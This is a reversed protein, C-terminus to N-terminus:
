PRDIRCRDSGSRTIRCRDSGSGTIRCRGSGSGTIRCRGSGSRTIRCRGSGSGTIRCRYVIWFCLALVAAAGLYVGPHLDALPFGARELLVGLANHALHWLVAPFISGSLLTLAALLVGLFSVPVIRVVLGHFLGFVLGVTLCLTVPRLRRRLGHLLIGRFFVEELVGPLVVIWFLLQWLPLGEPLLSEGLSRLWEEPLPVVANTLQFLGNAVIVGAPAGLLVALWVPPRPARLSLAEQPDLRYRRLLLLSGGGFLLVVNFLVQRELPALATVNASAVFQVVWVGGAWYPLSQEFRQALTLPEPESASPVILRETSLSRLARHSAWAAACATILWALVLFPWDRSGTMVERVAVAVNAIPVLVIASRLAVGPLAAAAALLLGLLFVPLFLIQSEMYSRSRGSALLLVAAALVAMPLLIVFVLLVDSGSVAVSFDKPLPILGSAVYVLLNFAQTVTVIVAVTLIGLLKAAVIDGRRAATTLLTELTGREKEGAITDNAVVSGGILVFMLVFGALLKGLTSGTREAASAVDRTTLPLVEEAELPFGREVLLEHRHRSRVRELLRALRESGSRSPDRDARYHLRLRPLREGELGEVYFHIQDGHLAAEADAVEQEALRLRSTKEQGEAELALGEAILGRALEARPGVVAYRFATTALRRERQREVLRNSFLFVPMVVLPLAVSFILARKDRVLMRLEHRLLLAISALAPTSRM